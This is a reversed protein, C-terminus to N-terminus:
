NGLANELRNFAEDNIPIGFRLWNPNEDFARVLIGNRGLRQFIENAGDISALRFLDTGGIIKMGVNLLIRDLKKANNGLQIKSQTIWSEDNMANIGAWIAPGSVAWPGLSNEILQATQEDSIAFGLRLGGLGFFKGFSRLIILGPQGAHPCLSLEPCVDSFAEDVVLAGGRDFMEEALALLGDVAHTTGTPNNPNVVLAYNAAGAAQTCTSAADIVAHGAAAWAPKHEAYTPGLISVNGAALIKPVLKVLSQSGPAAIIKANEAVRYYKRAVYLLRDIDDTGPLRHMFETPIAALPYPNPNIGTSLDLWGNKPRGFIAEASAIDGGHRVRGPSNHSPNDFHTIAGDKM